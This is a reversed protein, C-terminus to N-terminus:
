QYKQRNGDNRRGHGVENIARLGIRGCHQQAIGLALRDPEASAAHDAQEGINGGIDQHERVLRCELAPECGAGIQIQLGYSRVIGCEGPPLPAVVLHAEDGGVPALHHADIPNLPPRAPDFGARQLGLDIAGIDVIGEREPAPLNIDRTEIEIDLMALDLPRELGGDAEGGRHEVSGAALASQHDDVIEPLVQKVREFEGAFSAAVLQPQDIVLAIPQEPRPGVVFPAEHEGRPAPVAERM